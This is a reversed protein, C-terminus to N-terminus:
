PISAQRHLLTMANLTRFGRHLSSLDSFACFRTPFTLKEGGRVALYHGNGAAQLDCHVHRPQHIEVRHQQFM